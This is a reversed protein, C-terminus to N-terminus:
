LESKGAWRRDKDSIGMKHHGPQLVQFVGRPDLADRISHLRAVNQEGYSRLPLQEEFCHNLFIYPHHVGKTEAEAEIRAIMSRMFLKM